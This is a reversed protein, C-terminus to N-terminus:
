QKDWWAQVAARVKDTKNDLAMTGTVSGSRYFERGAIRQIIKLAADGITTVDHSFTFSRWCSVSRTFRRDGLAAILAPVAANGLNVLQHAPSDKRGDDTAFIDMGGPEGFQSGNQERLRFIWESVQEAPPLKAIEEDTRAPHAADEAVMQALVAAMAAARPLHDCHPFHEPLARLRALLERRSVLPDRFALVTRWIEFHGIDRELKDRFPWAAGYRERDIQGPQAFGESIQAAAFLQAALDDLGKRACMWGLVFRHTREPFHPGANFRHRSSNDKPDRPHVEANAFAVLDAPEYRYQTAVGYKRKPLEVSNFMLNLGKLKEPTDELLFGNRWLEERRDAGYITWGYFFRVFKLEKVDPYGLKSFWEFDAAMGADPEAHAVVPSTALAILLLSTKMILPLSHVRGEPPDFGRILM